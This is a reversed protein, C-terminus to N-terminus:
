GIRPSLGACCLPTFLCKLWCHCLQEISCEYPRLVNYIAVTCKARRFHIHDYKQPIWFSQNYWGLPAILKLIFKHLNSTLFHIRKKKAHARARTRAHTRVYTRVYALTLVIVTKLYKVHSHIHCSKFSLYNIKMAYWTLPFNLLLPKWVQLAMPPTYSMSIVFYLNFM